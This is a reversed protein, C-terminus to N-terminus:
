ISFRRERLVKQLRGIVLSRKQETLNIGFNDYVLKRINQFESEGITPTQVASPATIM